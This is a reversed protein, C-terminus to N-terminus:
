HILRLLYKMYICMHMYENGKNGEESLELVLVAVDIVKRFNSAERPDVLSLLSRSLANKGSLDLCHTERDRHLSTDPCILRASSVKENCTPCEFDTKGRNLNLSNLACGIHSAHGCGFICCGHLNTVPGFQFTDKCLMCGNPHLYELADCLEHPKLRELHHKSWLSLAMSRSTRNGAVDLDCPGRSTSNDAKNSHITVHAYALCLRRKYEPSKDDLQECHVVLDRGIM